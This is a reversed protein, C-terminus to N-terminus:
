AAVSEDTGCPIQVYEPRHHRHHRHSTFDQQCSKLGKRLVIFDQTSDHYMLLHCHRILSSKSGTFMSYKNFKRGSFCKSRRRILQPWVHAARHWVFVGGLLPPTLISFTDQGRSRHRSTELEFNECERGPLPLSCNCSCSAGTDFRLQEGRKSIDQTVNGPFIVGGLFTQGKGCRLRGTTKLVTGCRPSRLFNVM